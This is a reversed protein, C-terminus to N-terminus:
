KAFWLMNHEYFSILAQKHLYEVNSKYKFGGEVMIERFTKNEVYIQLLVKTHKANSLKYIDKKHTELTNMLKEIEKSNDYVKAMVEEMHNTPTVQVHDKSYDIGTGMLSWCLTENMDVLQQIRKTLGKVKLLEMKAITQKDRNDM